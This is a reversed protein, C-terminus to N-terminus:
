KFCERWREGSLHLTKCPDPQCSPVFAWLAGLAVLLAVTANVVGTVGELQNKVWSWGTPSKEADRAAKKDMQVM